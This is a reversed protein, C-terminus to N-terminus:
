IRNGVNDSPRVKIKVLSPDIHQKVWDRGLQLAKVNSDILKEKGKFQEAFLAQIKKEDIDLLISLAGVYIINKFLQRQRADSYPPSTIGTLPVAGVTVAEPSSSAPG